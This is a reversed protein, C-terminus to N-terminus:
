FRHSRELVEIFVITKFHLHLIPPAILLLLFPFSSRLNAVLPLVSCDIWPGLPGSNTKVAFYILFDVM